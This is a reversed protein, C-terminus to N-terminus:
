REVQASAICTRLGQHSRPTAPTYPAQHFADAVGKKESLTVRNGTAVIYEHPESPGYLVRKAYPLEEWFPAIFDSNTRGPLGNPELCRDNSQVGAFKLLDYSTAIV